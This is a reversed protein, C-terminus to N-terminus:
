REVTESLTESLTCCDRLTCWHRPETALRGHLCRAVKCRVEPRLKVSRPSTVDLSSQVREVVNRSAVARSRIRRRIRGRIRRAIRGAMRIRGRIRVLRAFIRSAWPHYMEPQCTSVNWQLHRCKRWM